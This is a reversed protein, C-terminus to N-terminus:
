YSFCFSINPEHHQLNYVQIPNLHTTRGVETTSMWTDIIKYPKIAHHSPLIWLSLASGEFAKQPRYMYNPYHWKWCIKNILALWLSPEYELSPNYIGCRSSFLKVLWINLVHVFPPFFWPRNALLRGWLFPVKKLM